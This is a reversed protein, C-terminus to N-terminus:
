EGEGVPSGINRLDDLLPKMYLRYRTQFETNIDDILDLQRERTCQLNQNKLTEMINDVEKYQFLLLTKELRGYASLRGTRYLYRFLDATTLPHLKEVRAEKRYRRTKEFVNLDSSVVYDAGAKWALYLVHRDKEGLMIRRGELDRSFVRFDTEEDEVIEVVPSNRLRERTARAHIEEFNVRSMLIRHGDMQGLFAELYSIEPIELDIVVCADLVFILSM